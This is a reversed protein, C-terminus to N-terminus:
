VSKEVKEAKLIAAVFCLVAVLLVILEGVDGIISLNTMSGYVVHAVFLAFFGASALLPM